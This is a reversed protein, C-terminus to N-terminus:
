PQPAHYVVLPAHRAIAEFDRDDHFLELEYEIAVAAILCDITTRVTAGFRRCRRYLQAAQVFTELGRARFVPFDLLYSRIHQFRGEDRLGQLIETLILDTLALDASREILDYLHSADPDRAHNFFKVWVSTDVLILNSEKAHGCSKRGLM